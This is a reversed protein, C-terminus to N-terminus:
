YIKVNTKASQDLTWAKRSHTLNEGTDDVCTSVREQTCFPYLLAGQNCLVASALVINYFM